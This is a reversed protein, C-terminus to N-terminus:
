IIPSPVEHVNGYGGRGIWRRHSLTEDGGTTYTNDITDSAM